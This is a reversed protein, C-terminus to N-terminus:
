NDFLSFHQEIRDPIIARVGEFAGLRDWCCLMFRNRHTEKRVDDINVELGLKNAVEVVYEAKIFPNIIGGRIYNPNNKIGDKFEKVAEMTLLIIIERIYSKDHINDLKDQLSYTLFDSNETPETLGVTM